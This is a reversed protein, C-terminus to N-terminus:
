PKPGSLWLCYFCLRLLSDLYKKLWIQWLFSEPKFKQSLPITKLIRSDFNADSPSRLKSTEVGMLRSSLARTRRPVHCCPIIIIWLDASTYVVEVVKFAYLGSFRAILWWAPPNWPGWKSLRCRGLGSLRIITKADEQRTIFQGSQNIKWDNVAEHFLM